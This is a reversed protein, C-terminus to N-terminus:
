ILHKSKTKPANFVPRQGTEVSSACFCPKWRKSDLYLWIAIGPLFYLITAKSGYGLFFAVASFVLVAWGRRQKWRVLFALAVSSVTMSWHHETGGHGAGKGEARKRPTLYRM